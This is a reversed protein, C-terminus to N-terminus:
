YMSGKPYFGSLQLMVTRWLDKNCVESRSTPLIYINTGAHMWTTSYCDSVSEQKNTRVYGSGPCCGFTGLIQAYCIGSPKSPIVIDQSPARPM